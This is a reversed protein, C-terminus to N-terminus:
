WVRKDNLSDWCYTINEARLIIECEYHYPECDFWVWCQFLFSQYGDYKTIFEVEFSGDNVAHIFNELEWEERIVKGSRNEKFVYIQVVEIEEDIMRFDVQSSNTRVLDESQNEPHDPLVWFGDAFLFSLTGKEYNMKGARCDHLSIYPNNIEQHQYM